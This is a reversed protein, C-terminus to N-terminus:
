WAKLDCKPTDKVGKLQDTQCELAKDLYRMYGAAVNPLPCGQTRLADLLMQQRLQGNLMKLQRNTERPASNDGLSDTWTLANQKDITTFASSLESCNKPAPPAAFALTASSLILGAWLYKM